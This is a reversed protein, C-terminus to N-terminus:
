TELRQVVRKIMDQTIKTQTYLDAIDDELSYWDSWSFSKYRRNSWMKRSRVELSAIKWFLNLDNDNVIPFKPINRM